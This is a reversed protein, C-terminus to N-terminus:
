ALLEKAKAAIGEGTLGYHEFVQKSNGTIVPADPLAQTLCKRPCSEGVVQAVM